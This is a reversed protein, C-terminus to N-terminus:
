GGCQNATVAALGVAVTVVALGETDVALEEAVTDAALGKTVAMDEQHRVGTRMVVQAVGHDRSKIHPIDLDKTIYPEAMTRVMATHVAITDVMGIRGGIIRLSLGHGGHYPSKM